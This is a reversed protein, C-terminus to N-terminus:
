EPVAAVLRPGDADHVKYNGRVIVPEVVPIVPCGVPDTPTIGIFNVQSDRAHGPEGNDTFQLLMESDVPTVPDNTKEITGRAAAKNGVVTLCTIRGRTEFTGGPRVVETWFHGRAEGDAERQANIHVTLSGPEGFRLREGTGSVLAVAGNEATAAAPLAVVAAALAALLARHM